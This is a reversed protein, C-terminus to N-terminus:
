LKGWTEMLAVLTRKSSRKRKKFRLSKQRRKIQPRTLSRSLINTKSGTENKRWFVNQMFDYAAYTVYTWSRKHKMQWTDEILNLNEWWFVSFYFNLSTKISKFKKPRMCTANKSNCICRTHLMPLKLRQLTRLASKKEIYSVCLYAHNYGM